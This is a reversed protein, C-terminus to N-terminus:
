EHQSVAYEMELLVNLFLEVAKNRERYFQRISSFGLRAAIQENKLRHRFYRYHLINYHKWEPASETRSGSGRLHELAENLIERIVVGRKATSLTTDKELRQSVTRMLRLNTMGLAQSDDIKDLAVELEDTTMHFLGVECTKRVFQRFLLSESLEPLERQQKGKQQAEDQLLIQQTESLEEWTSQFRPLLDRYALNKLRQEDIEGGNRQLKEEYLVHCVRQIFFPHRGALRLVLAVEADSFPMAAREAPVTILAHAEEPTLAELTYSYFINFFPSGVIDRHCVEYLPKISATVYSVLGVSAQARLFWFFEPGFHENRTVKDFGDLLLVPFFGQGAIQDLVSSFEDEGRGEAQLTLGVKTSQTIMEKSVSHFFDECTKQLYERLDLFVFIHCSLDYPFRAQMESLATCWLFSSKGIHRPGLLSVSQRNFVTEYFRRLLHTRGFFMEASRIIALNFYPNPSPSGM